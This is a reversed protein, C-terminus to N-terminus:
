DNPADPHPPLVMIEAARTPEATRGLYAATVNTDAHGLQNAIEALSAGAEDMWTAVTRRFTHSGAWNIGAKALVLRLSKLVNNRDRPKGLKSAYRTVGFVLGSTGHVDARARLRETLDASMKLTRDARVSKTGRVRVLQRDLDVDAWNVCHLAESIRAGTGFLFAALDGLDAKSADAWTQVRHAEAATLARKTDLHRKGCDGDCDPENCKRDGVSGAAAGPTHVRHIVSAPIAGRREALELIGKLVKRSQKAATEGRVDAIGALWAEIRGVDNVELLTLDAVFDSGQICRRVYGAYDTLTTNTLSRGNRRQRRKWDLWVDAAASVKTDQNLLRDGGRFENRAENVKRQLERRAAADTKGSARMEVRKGYANKFYGRSQKYGALTPHATITVTGLTFPPTKPRAM